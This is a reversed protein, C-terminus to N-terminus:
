RKNAEPRPRGEVVLVPYCDPAEGQRSVCLRFKGQLGEMDLVVKLLKGDPSSGARMIIPKGYADVMSVNYTGRSTGEPLTLVFRTRVPRLRVIKEEALSEADRLLAADDFALEVTAKAILEPNSAKSMGKPAPEDGTVTPPLATPAPADSIRNPSSASPPRASRAQENIASNTAPVRTLERWALAGILLAVFVITTLFALRPAITLTSAQSRLAALLSELTRLGRFKQAAREPATAEQEALADVRQLVETLSAEDILTFDSLESIRDDFDASSADPRKCLALRVIMEPLTGLKRAIGEEDLGQQNQYVALVHAMFNPNSALKHALLRFVEHAPKSPSM